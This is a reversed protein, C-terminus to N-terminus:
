HRSREQNNADHVATRRRPRPVAIRRPEEDRPIARYTNDVSGANSSMSDHAVTAEAQQVSALELAGTFEVGEMPTAQNSSSSPSYYNSSFTFGFMATATGTTKNSSLVKETQVGVSRTAAKAQTGVCRIQPPLLAQTAVSVLELLKAKKLAPNGGVEMDTESFLRKQVVPPPMTAYIISRTFVITTTM